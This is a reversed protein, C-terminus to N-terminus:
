GDRRPHTKLLSIQMAWDMDFHCKKVSANAGLGPKEVFTNIFTGWM